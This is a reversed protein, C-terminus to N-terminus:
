RPKRRQSNARSMGNGTLDKRQHPLAPSQTRFRKRYGSPNVGFRREFARRLTDESQFGVSKAIQEISQGSLSLRQRAEGLRLDMVFVAPTAAFVGKFRRSFHRPCLCTKEALAEVSLDHTLHGQMWAALDAFRDASRTQFKLPESYQEQGGARKLYVVLERAVALAVSPGHDEEILALALDIGATVGAGTYFPGDKLFLANADVKLASFRKAVDQAFRWHTTVRRGDLL